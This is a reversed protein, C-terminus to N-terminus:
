HTLDTIERAARRAARAVHMMLRQRITKVLERKRATASRVEVVGQRQQTALQQARALQLELEAV